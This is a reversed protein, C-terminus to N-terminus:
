AELSPYQVVPRAPSVKGSKTLINLHVRVGFRRDCPHSLPRRARSSKVRRTATSRGGTKRSRRKPVAERVAGGKLEPAMTEIM